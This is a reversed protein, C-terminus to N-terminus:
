AEGRADRGRLGLRLAHRVNELHPLYELNAAANSTRCGDIHNVELGDPKPGLFAEAVLSHIYRLVLGREPSYFGTALYRRRMNQAMLYVGGTVISRRSNIRRVRGLNSAQYQGEWGLCDRWEEGPLDQFPENVASM